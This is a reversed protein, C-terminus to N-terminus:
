TITETNTPVSSVETNWSHDSVYKILKTNLKGKHIFNEVLSISCTDILNIYEYNYLFPM